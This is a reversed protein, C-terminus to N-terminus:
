TLSATLHQWAGLPTQRDSVDVMGVGFRATPNGGRHIFIDCFSASGGRMKEGPAELGRSKGHELQHRHTRERRLPLWSLAYLARLGWACRRDSTRM